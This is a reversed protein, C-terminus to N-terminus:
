STIFSNDSIVNLKGPFIVNVFSWKNAETLSNAHWAFIVRVLLILGTTLKWSQSGIMNARSRFYDNYLNCTFAEISFWAVTKNDWCLSSNRNIYIKNYPAFSFYDKKRHKEINWM